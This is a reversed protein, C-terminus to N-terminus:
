IIAYIHSPFFFVFIPVVCPSYPTIRVKKIWRLHQGNNSKWRKGNEISLCVTLFRARYRQRARYTYPFWTSSSLKSRARDVSISSPLLKGLEISPSSSRSASSSLQHLVTSSSRSRTSISSPILIDLVTGRSRHDISSPQCISSSPDTDLETAWLVLIIGMDNRRKFALLAYLRKENPVSIGKCTIYCFFITWSRFHYCKSM